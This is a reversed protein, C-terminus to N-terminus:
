VATRNSFSRNHDDSSPEENAPPHLANAEAHKGGRAGGRLPNMPVRLITGVAADLCENFSVFFRDISHFQRQPASRRVRQNFGDVYFVHDRGVAGCTKRCALAANSGSILSSISVRLDFIRWTGSKGFAPM